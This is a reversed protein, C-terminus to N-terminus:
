TGGKAVPRATLAVACSASRSVAHVILSVGPTRRTDTLGRVSTFSIEM